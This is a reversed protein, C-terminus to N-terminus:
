YHVPQHSCFLQFLIGPVGGSRSITGTTEQLRLEYRFLKQWLAHNEVNSLGIYGMFNHFFIFIARVKCFIVWSRWLLTQIILLQFCHSLLDIVWYCSKRSRDSNVVFYRLIPWYTEAMWIQRKSHPEWSGGSNRPRGFPLLRIMISDFLGSLETCLIIHINKLYLHLYIM